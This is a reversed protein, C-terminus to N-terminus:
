IRCQIFYPQGFWFNCVVPVAYEGGDELPAQNNSVVKDDSLNSKEQKLGKFHIWALNFASQASRQLYGAHYSEFASKYAGGYWLIDGAQVRAPSYGQM